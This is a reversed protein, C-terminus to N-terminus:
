ECTDLLQRKKHIREDAGRIPEIKAVKVKEKETEKETKKEEEM